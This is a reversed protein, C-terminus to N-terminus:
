TKRKEDHEGILRLEDYTQRILKLEKEVLKDLCFWKGKVIIDGNFETELNRGLCQFNYSTFGDDTLLCNGNDVKAYLQIADNFPDLENTDIVCNFKKSNITYRKKIWFM